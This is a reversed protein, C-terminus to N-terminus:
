RTRVAAQMVGLAQRCQAFAASDGALLSLGALAKRVQARDGLDVAGAQRWAPELDHMARPAAARLRTLAHRVPKKSPPRVVHAHHQTGHKGGVHHPRPLPESLYRQVAPSIERLRRPMDYPALKTAYGAVADIRAHEQDLRDRCDAATARTAYYLAGAALANWREPQASLDRRGARATLQEELQVWQHRCARAAADTPGTHSSAAPSADACGAATALLGTLSLTAAALGARAPLRSPM